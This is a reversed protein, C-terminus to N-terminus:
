VINFFTIVFLFILFVFAYLVYTQTNGSQVIAFRNIFKNLQWLPRAIFTYELIDKASSHFTRTKPFIDRLYFKKFRFKLRLVPFALKEFSEAFSSSTYQIRSDGATYGCGWTPEIREGNKRTFYTRIGYIVGALGIFVMMLTSLNELPKISSVSISVTFPIFINVIPSIFILLYNPALAILLMLVVIIFQPALMWRSVEKAEQKLEKRATGLFVIGFVKTFCFIALGGILALGLLALLLLVDVSVNGKNFEGMIGDYILFESVFGNFPPLGCIAIAGALFLLASIPMQKILGGLSDLHKSHTQQYITGAGFFLLPKFLAHNLIHLIAGAFGLFGLSYNQVGLGLVGLGIGMGIIGINEISSFALTKKLDSQVIANIIGYLGTIFSIVLIFIGIEYYSNQLCSVVRLIGFIGIKSMIGSMLGSIHSPASGYTHPLWTHLPVFGAKLGFGLFFVIFLSWNINTAFYERLAHFSMQGTEGMLIFSGLMIFILCIHMQVLYNLGSKLTEEKKSEFIVLLFSSLSMVEWMIMFPVFHQIIVLQLMALHLMNFAMFHINLAVPEKYSSMYGQAYISTLMVVLNILLILFAALSDASLEINGLLPLEAITYQITGYNLVSIAFSSSVIAFLISIVLAFTSKYKAPVFLVAPIFIAIIFLAGLSM